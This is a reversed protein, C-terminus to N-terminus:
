KILEKPKMLEWTELYAELVEAETCITFYEQNAYEIREPIDLARWTYDNDSHPSKFLRKGKGCSSSVFSYHPEERTYFDLSVSVEIKIRSGDDRRIIKEHRM